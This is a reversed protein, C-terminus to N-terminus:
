GSKISKPVSFFELHCSDKERSGRECVKRQPIFFHSQIVSFSTHTLYISGDIECVKRQPIFFYKVSFTTHSLYIFREGDGDESKTVM